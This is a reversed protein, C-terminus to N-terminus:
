NSAERGFGRARGNTRMRKRTATTLLDTLSVAIASSRLRPPAAGPAPAISLRMRSLALVRASSTADVPRAREVTECRMSASSDWPRTMGTPSFAEVPPRGGCVNANLASAPTIRTAPRPAVCEVIAIVFRAASTRASSGSSTDIASPGSGTMARTSSTKM